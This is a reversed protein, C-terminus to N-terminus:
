LLWPLRCPPVCATCPMDTMGMGWCWMDLPGHVHVHAHAYPHLGSRGQQCGVQSSNTPAGARLTAQQATVIISSPSSAMVLFLMGLVSFASLRAM